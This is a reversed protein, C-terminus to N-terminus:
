RMAIRRSCSWASWNGDNLRKAIAWKTAQKYDLKDTNSIDKHISNIQWLGLDYTGNTNHGKAQDDWKSECSILADAHKPDELGHGVV